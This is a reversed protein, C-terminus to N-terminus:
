RTGDGRELGMRYKLYVPGAERRRSDPPDRTKRAQATKKEVSLTYIDPSHNIPSCSHHSLSAPLHHLLPLPLSNTVCSIPNELTQQNM